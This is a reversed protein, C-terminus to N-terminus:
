GTLLFPAVRRQRAGGFRDGHATDHLVRSSRLLQYSSFHPGASISKCRSAPPACSTGRGTRLKGRLRATIRGRARTLTSCAGAATSWSGRTGAASFRHSSP